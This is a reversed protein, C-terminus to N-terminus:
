EWIQKLKERNLQLWQLAIMPTASVIIGSTLMAFAEEASVVFVRIDEDEHQIFRNQSLESTDVRALYLTVREKFGGPSSYYSCIHLMEQVKCSCEEFAERRATAERTEGAEILGAVIEVLWPGQPSDIAGARFQEILIVNDLYPDYPLVAVADSRHVLERVLVRSWDGSYLNHRLRIQQLFFFGQYCLSQEVIEFKM